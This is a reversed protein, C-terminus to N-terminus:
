TRKRKLGEFFAQPNRVFAAAPSLELEILMASVEPEVVEGRPTVFVCACDRAFGAIRQLLELDLKRADLRVRVQHVHGNALIVDIRDGDEDGFVKWEPDWPVHWPLFSTIRKEYDAPLDVGVVLGDTLGRRPILELDFQWTAM